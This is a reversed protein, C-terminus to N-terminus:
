SASSAVETAPPSSENAPASRNPAEIMLSLTYAAAFMWLVILVVPFGWERIKQM